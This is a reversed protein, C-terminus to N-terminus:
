KSKQICQQLEQMIRTKLTRTKAYSYNFKKAIETLDLTKYTFFTLIFKQNAQSLKDLCKKLLNQREEDILLSLQDAPTSHALTNDEIDTVNKKEIKMLKLYEYRSATILYKLLTKKDTIRDNRIREFVESFAQYACEEAVTSPANMRIKLYLIVKDLLDSTLSDAAVRDDRLIAEILDSYDSPSRSM